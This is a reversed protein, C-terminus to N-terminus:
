FCVPCSTAVTPRKRKKVASTLWVDTGTKDTGKSIRLRFEDCQSPVAETNARKNVVMTTTLNGKATSLFRAMHSNSLETGTHGIKVEVAALPLVFAVNIMALIYWSTWGRFGM